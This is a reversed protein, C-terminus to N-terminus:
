NPAKKPSTVADCSITATEIGTAMNGLGERRPAAAVAVSLQSYHPHSCGICCVGRTVAAVAGEFEVPLPIEEGSRTFFQPKVFGSLEKDKGWLELSLYGHVGTFVEDAQLKPRRGAEASVPRHHTISLEYNRGIRLMEIRTLVPALVVTHLGNVALSGLTQLWPLAEGDEGAFTVYYGMEEVAGGSEIGRVVYRRAFGQHELSLQPRAYIGLKRLRSTIASSLRLGWLNRRGDTEISPREVQQAKSGEAERRALAVLGATVQDAGRLTALLAEHDEPRWIEGVREASIDGIWKRRAPAGNGEYHDM